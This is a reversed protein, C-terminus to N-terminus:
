VARQTISRRAGGEASARAARRARRKAGRTAQVGYGLTCPRLATNRARPLVVHARAAWAPAARSAADTNPAEQAPLM